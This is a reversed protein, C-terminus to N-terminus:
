KIKFQVLLSYLTFKIYAKFYGPYNKQHLRIVQKILPLIKLKRASEGGSHIRYALTYKNLNAFKGWCGLQLFLELDEVPAFDRYGVTKRLASTRMLVSSNAFQNRTLIVKRIEEDTTQYLNKGLENGNEDITIINSGIVVHNPNSEMFEVQDKIKNPDIWYDDSDLVAVYDGTVLSLSEHRRFYLGRNITNKIYRIRKDSYTNVIETTNDTSGDDVIVLELNIYTQALVSDIALHIYNARNYTLMVISVLPSKKVQTTTDM